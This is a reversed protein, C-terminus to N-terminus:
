PLKVNMADYESSLKNDLKSTEANFSQLSGTPSLALDSFSKYDQYYQDIMDRYEKYGKPYKNLAKVEKMIKDQGNTLEDSKGNVMFAANQDAIADDMNTAKVGNISVSGNFIVDHWIQSYKNVISEATVASHLIDSRTKKFSKIYTKKENELKKKAVLLKQKHVAAQHKQYAFVSGGTILILAVVVIVSLILKSRLWGNLKENKM